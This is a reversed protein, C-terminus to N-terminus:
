SMAQHDLTMPKKELTFSIVKRLNAPKLFLYAPHKHEHEDLRVVWRNPECWNVQVQGKLWTSYYQGQDLFEVLTGTADNFDVIGQGAVPCPTTGIIKVRDNKQLLQGASAM